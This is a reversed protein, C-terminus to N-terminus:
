AARASALVHRDLMTQFASFVRRMQPSKYPFMDESDMDHVIMAIGAEFVLLQGNMEACDIMFYDLGLRRAVEALAARHRLGFGTDFQTMFQAEEDRKEPSAYMDANLYWIAWKESIAMHVAMPQGDVFVIRYKRFLGDPSSYDMFRSLFFNPGPEAALYPEIGMAHQLRELGRGAHSGVPRVILPFTLPAPPAGGAGIVALEHRSVKETPAILLNPVRDLLTFLRDRDTQAIKAPENLFPRPWGVVLSKVDDLSASGEEDDPIIVIAIDHDPILHEIPRGPVVYLVKLEIDTGQVLFEIPTNGGIDLPAALALLRLRPPMLCGSSRYCQEQRLAQQQIALGLARNGLLQEVVALDMAAGPEGRYARLKDRISTLDAGQFGLQVLRATGIRDCFRLDSQLTVTM